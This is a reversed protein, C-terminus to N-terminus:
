EFNKIENLLKKVFERKDIQPHPIQLQPTSIFGEQWEQKEGGLNDRKELIKLIDIDLTRSTYIKDGNKIEGKELLANDRERGFDKEIKQCIKLVEEPTKQTNCVFIQNVFDKVEGSETKFNGIPKTNIQSSWFLIAENQLTYAIAGKKKNKILKELETLESLFEIGLLEKGVKNISSLVIESPCLKKTELNKNSGFLLYVRYM